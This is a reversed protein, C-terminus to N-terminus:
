LVVLNESPSYISDENRRSVAAYMLDIPKSMGCQMRADLYGVLKKMFQKGRVAYAYTDQIDVNRLVLSNVATSSTEGDRHRGGLYLMEWDNPVASLFRTTHELFTSAFRVSDELILVSDIGEDLCKRLLLYHSLYREWAEREGHWYHPVGSVDADIASYREVFRFPWDSPMGSIFANYQDSRADKSVVFVRDFMALLQLNKM